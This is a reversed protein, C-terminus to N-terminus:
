CERRRLMLPSFCSVEIRGINEYIIYFIHYIKPPSIDNEAIIWTVNKIMIKNKHQFIM